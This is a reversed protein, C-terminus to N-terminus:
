GGHYALLENIEKLTFKNLQVIKTEKRFAPPVVMLAEEKDKADMFFWAKHVGDYCGWDANTLFHSGTSLLVKVSRLCAVKEKEHPIEIFYKPMITLKLELLM